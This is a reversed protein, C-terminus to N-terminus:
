TYMCRLTMEYATFVVGNVVFARAVTAGLGRWLVHHGEEAVSRAFCDIIGYYSSSNSQAQIRTKIVDLPYCSLWSTVGSLGGALLMTTLNEQGSKRCGPHLQEKIYEYTWFYVGHSPADRLITVGLGRYIGRWGQAKFISRAVDIPGKHRVNNSVQLQLHIKVLEIPSILFSQITGAGIGALGVSTYSPPEDKALNTNFARSLTASSQFVIANQM